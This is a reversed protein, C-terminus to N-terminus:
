VLRHCSKLFARKGCFGFGTLSSNKLFIQLEISEERKNAIRFSFTSQNVPSSPDSSCPFTSGCNISSNISKKHDMFTCIVIFDTKSVGITFECFGGASTSTIGLILTAFCAIFSPNSILNFKMFIACVSISKIFIKNCRLGNHSHLSSTPPPLHFTVHTKNIAWVQWNYGGCDTFRRSLKIIKM